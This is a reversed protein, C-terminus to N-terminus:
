LLAAFHCAMNTHLTAHTSSHSNRIQSSTRGSDCAPVWLWAEHGVSLWTPVYPTKMKPKTLQDAAEREFLPGVSGCEATKAGRGCERM